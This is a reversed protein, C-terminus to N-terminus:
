CHVCSPIPELGDEREGRQNCSGLTVPLVDCQYDQAQGFEANCLMVEFTASEPGWCTRPNSLDDICAVHGPDEAYWDEIHLTNDLPFSINAGGLNAGNNACYQVVEVRPKSDSPGSNVAQPPSTPSPTPDLECYPFEVPGMAHYGPPCIGNAPMTITVMIPKIMPPGSNDAQPPLTPIPTPDLECYPFEVPGMSHYGPPCIGNAPMTITVMIPKIGPPGSNDAQPPPTSAGCASLLISTFALVELVLYFKPTKM